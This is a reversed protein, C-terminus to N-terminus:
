LILDKDNKDPWVAFGNGSPLTTSDTTKSDGVSLKFLFAKGFGSM